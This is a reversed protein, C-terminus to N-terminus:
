VFVLHRELISLTVSDDLGAEACCLAPRIIFKVVEGPSIGRTVNMEVKNVIFDSREPPYSLFLWRNQGCLIEDLAIAQEVVNTLSGILDEQPLSAALKGLLALLDGVIELVKEDRGAPTGLTVLLNTTTAKWSHFM